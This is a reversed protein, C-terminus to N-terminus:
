PLALTTIAICLIHPLIALSHTLSTMAFNFLPCYTLLKFPPPQYAQVSVVDSNHPQNSPVKLAFFCNCPLSCGPANSYVPEMALGPILPM